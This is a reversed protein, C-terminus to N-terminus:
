SDVISIISDLLYKVSFPSRVAPEDTVSYKITTVNVEYCATGRDLCTILTRFRRQFENCSTSGNQNYNRTLTPTARRKNQVRKSFRNM